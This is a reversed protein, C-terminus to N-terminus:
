PIFKTEYIIDVMEFHYSKDYLKVQPTICDQMVGRKKVDLYNRNYLFLNHLFSVLMEQM